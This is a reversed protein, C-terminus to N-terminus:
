LAMQWPKLVGAAMPIDPLSCAPCLRPSKNKDGHQEPESEKGAPGQPGQPGPTGSGSPFEESLQQLQQKTFHGGGLEKWRNLRDSITPM